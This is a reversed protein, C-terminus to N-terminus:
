LDIGQSRMSRKVDELGSRSRVICEQVSKVAARYDSHELTSNLMNMLLGAGLLMSMAPRILRPTDPDATELEGIQNILRAINHEALRVSLTACGVSDSEAADGPPLSKCAGMYGDHGYIQGTDSNYAARAEYDLVASTFGLLAEHDLEALSEPALGLSILFARLHDEKVLTPM